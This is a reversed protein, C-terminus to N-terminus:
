FLRRHSLFGYWPFAALFSAGCVVGVVAAIDERLVEDPGVWGSEVM